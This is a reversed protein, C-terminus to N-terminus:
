GRTPREDLRPNLSPLTHIRPRRWWLRVIRLNGALYGANTFSVLLLMLERGLVESGHAGAIYHFEPEGKSLSPFFCVIMDSALLLVIRLCMTNPFLFRQIVSRM